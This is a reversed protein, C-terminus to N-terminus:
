PLYIIFTSILFLVIFAGGTWVHEHSQLYVKTHFCYKNCCPPLDFNESSSFDFLSNVKSPFNCKAFANEKSDLSCPINESEFFGLFTCLVNFFLM